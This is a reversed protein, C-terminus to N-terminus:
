KSQEKKVGSGFMWLPTQDFVEKAEAELIGTVVEPPPAFYDKFQTIEDDQLIPWKSYGGMFPSSLAIVVKKIRYERIMFSCMPCPECITYLTCESLDASKLFQHAKDLVLIEAHDSTRDKSGNTSEAIIQGDKTIISSFPAQGQTLGQKALVMCKEIVQKDEM